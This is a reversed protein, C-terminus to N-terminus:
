IPSRVSPVDVNGVYELLWRYVKTTGSEEVAIPLGQQRATPSVEGLIRATDATRSAVRIVAERAITEDGTQAAETLSVELEYLASRAQDAARRTADKGLHPDPYPDKRLPPLLKRVIPFTLAGALVGLIAAAINAWLAATM